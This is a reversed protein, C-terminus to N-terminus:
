RRPENPRRGPFAPSPTITALPLRSLAIVAAIMIVLGVTEIASAGIGTRFGEDFVATGIVVSTLANVRNLAPLSVSLPGARYALQSLVIGIAGV